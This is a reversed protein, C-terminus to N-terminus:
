LEGLLGDTIAKIIANNVIDEHKTVDPILNSNFHPIINNNVTSIRPNTGLASGNIKTKLVDIVWNGNVDIKVPLTINFLSKQNKFLIDTSINKETKSIHEVKGLDIIKEINPLVVRAIELDKKNSFADKLLKSFHLQGIEAKKIHKTNSNERSTQLYKEYYDKIKRQKEPLTLGNFDLEDNKISSDYIFGKFNNVFKDTINYNIEEDIAKIADEVDTAYNIMIDKDGYGNEHDSIRIEKIPEADEQQEETKYLKLYTSLSQKSKEIDVIYGKDKCYDALTEAYDAVYDDVELTWDYYKDKANSYAEDEYDQLEYKIDEEDYGQVELEAEKKSILEDKYKKIIEEQRGFVSKSTINLEKAKEKLAEIKKINISNGETFRGQKDRPHDEEKWESNDIINVKSKNNGLIAYSGNIQDHGRSLMDDEVMTSSSVPEVKKNNFVINAREYRPNEVIALHEFEGDLFEIDYPINNETGGEASQTYSYSCSVSWGKNQILNIATEDTIIGDCWYWGDDANFWVNLVKGVIDDETIDSKHNIVVPKGVFTDIFKDLTEKRILANGYQGPYGAM